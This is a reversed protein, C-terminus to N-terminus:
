VKFFKNNFTVAMFSHSDTNVTIVSYKWLQKNLSIIYETSVYGPSGTVYSICETDNCLELRILMQIIVLINNM